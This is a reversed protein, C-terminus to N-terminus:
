INILGCIVSVAPIREKMESWLLCMTWSDPPDGTYCKEKNIQSQQQDGKM